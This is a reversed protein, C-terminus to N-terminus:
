QIVFQPFYVKRVAGPPVLKSISALLETRLEDRSSAEAVQDVTKSGFMRLIADRLEADRAKLATVTAEDKAELAVSVLLFRTGNSGAPNLVLNDLSYIPSPEALKRASDAAAASDAAHRKAAAVTKPQAPALRPGLVFLGVGAGVALGAVVGIVTMMLGSKAAAQPAAAATEGEPQPTATSDTSDAM